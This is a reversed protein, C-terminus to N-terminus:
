QEKQKDKLRKLVKSRIDYPSDKEKVTVVLIDLKEPDDFYIKDNEGFGALYIRKTQPYLFVRNYLICASDSNNCNYITVRIGDATKRIRYVESEESGSIYVESALQSYYKMAASLLGNRRDKLVSVLKDKRKHQIEAPLANVAQQIVSDTLKLQLDTIVARWDAEQLENLFTRDFNRAVTNLQYLGTMCPKFGKLYPAVISIGLRVFLGNLRFFAQDRDVPIPYYWALGASDKACWRWQDQHRDWDGTIMDLLRAKLVERQVVKKNHQKDLGTLLDEMSHRATGPLAPHYEELFYIDGGYASRYEGLATDHPLYVLRPNPATIGAHKALLAVSLCSYPYSGSLMDNAFREAASNRLYGPLVKEISKDVSRLTWETSDSAIMRLSKTQNGGGKKTVSLGGQEASIDIVPIKVPVGWEHRYNNGVAFRFLLGPHKFQGSAPRLVSDAMQSRQSFSISCCIFLGLTLWVRIRLIHFYNIM